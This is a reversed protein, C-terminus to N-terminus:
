SCVKEYVMALATALNRTEGRLLVTNDASEANPLEVHVGTTKFINEINAGRPGRIYKHKSKDIPVPLEGCTQKMIEYQASLEAVARAVGLKEGSVVIEDQL